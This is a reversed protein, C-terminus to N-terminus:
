KSIEGITLQKLAKETRSVVSCFSKRTKQNKSLIKMEPRVIKNVRMFCM